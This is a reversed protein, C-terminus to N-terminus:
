YDWLEDPVVDDLLFMSSKANRSIVQGNEDIWLMEDGKQVWSVVFNGEYIFPSLDGFVSPVKNFELDTIQKGKNNVYGLMGVPEKRVFALGYNFDGVEVFTPVILERGTADVLGYLDNKKVWAVGDQFDKAFSYSSNTLQKGTRVDVLVIEEDPYMKKWAWVVKETYCDSIEEYQCPVTIKGKNDVMGFMGDQAVMCYGNHFDGTGNFLFDTLEKGSKDILAWKGSANYHVFVKHLIFDDFVMFNRKVNEVKGKDNKVEETLVKQVMNGGKHVWALGSESFPSVHDYKPPIIEKGQQLDYYGWQGGSITGNYDVMVGGKNIAVMGNRCFEVYDYEVPCVVKGNFDIVGWKGGYPLQDYKCKGGINIWAYEGMFEGVATYIPQVIMSDNENAYGWLKGEKKPYLEQGTLSLLVLCSFFLLLPKKM